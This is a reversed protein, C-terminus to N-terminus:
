HNRFAEVRGIKINELQTQFYRTDGDVSIAVGGVNNLSAFSKRLQSEFGSIECYTQLKPLDTSKISLTLTADTFSVEHINFDSPVYSKLQDGISNDASPNAINKLVSQIPFAPDLEITRAVLSSCSDNRSQTDKLFYVRAREMTHSHQFKLGIKQLIPVKSSDGSKNSSISLTLHDGTHLEYAFSTVQIPISFPWRGNEMEDTKISGSTLMQNTNDNNLKWDLTTAYPASGVASFYYSVAQDPYLSTIFLSSEPPLVPVIETLMNNEVRIDVQMGPVLAGVGGDGDSYEVTDSLHYKLVDGQPTRLVVENNEKNVEVVTTHKDFLRGIRPICLGVVTILL